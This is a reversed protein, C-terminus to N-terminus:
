ENHILQLLYEDKWEGKVFRWEKKLGAVQFKRSKFLTLSSENGTEISCYLQHLNLLNFAYDILLDLAKGALSRGRWAKALAIGVGGRRHVADLDFLDVTGIAVPASNETTEVIFRVQGAAFPEQKNVSFVYQELDFRSFPFQTQSVHWLAEDNELAFLFDIDGPEPARLLINEKKLM